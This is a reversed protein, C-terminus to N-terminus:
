RPRAIEEALLQAGYKELRNIALNTVTKERPLIVLNSKSEANEASTYWAWFPKWGRLAISPIPYM